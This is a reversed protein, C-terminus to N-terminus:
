DDWDGLGGEVSLPFFKYKLVLTWEKWRFVPTKELHRWVRRWWSYLLPCAKGKHRPKQDSCIFYNRLQFSVIGLKPTWFQEQYTRQQHSLSNLYNATILSPTLRLWYQLFTHCRHNGWKLICFAGFFSIFEESLHPPNNQSSTIRM